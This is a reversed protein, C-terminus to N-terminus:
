QGPIKKEGFTVYNTIAVEDKQALTKESSKANWLQGKVTQQEEIAKTYKTFEEKPATKGTYNKKYDDITKSLENDKQTFKAVQEKVEKIKVQRAQYEKDNKALYDRAAKEQTPTIAVKVKVDAIAGQNKSTDDFVKGSLAKMTELKGPNEKTPIDLEIQAEKGKEIGKKTNELNGIAEASTNKVSITKDVEIPKKFEEFQLGKTTSSTAGPTSTATMFTLRNENSNNRSTTNANPGNFNLGGTPPVTNLTQTFTQVSQQMKVVAEKNQQIRLQERQIRLQEQQQVWLQQKANDLNDKMTQNEPNKDVAEQFAIVANAWDGSDYLDFGKQNATKAESLRQQQALEAASLQSATTNNYNTTSKTNSAKPCSWCQSPGMDKGVPIPQANLTLVQLSFLILMLVM